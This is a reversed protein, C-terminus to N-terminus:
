CDHRLASASFEKAINWFSDIPAGTNARRRLLSFPINKPGVLPIHKLNPSPERDEEFDFFAAVSSDDIREPPGEAMEPMEVLQNSSKLPAYLDDWLRENLSRTYVQVRYGHLDGPYIREAGALPHDNSMAISVGFWRLLLGEFEQEDYCGVIFSLDLSGGRLFQILNPNWGVNLELNVKRCRASFRNILERRQRVIKTYPAAGIRLVAANEGKIQCALAHAAEHASVLARAAELFEAGERTLAVKRTTRTLLTFGLYQELRRVRTSLWPQAIRLRVSAKAFSEEEAVIAFEIILRPDLKVV